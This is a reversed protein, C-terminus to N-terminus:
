EGQQNARMRIECHPSALFETIAKAREENMFRESAEATSNLSQLSKDRDAEDILSPNIEIENRLADRLMAVDKKLQENEAHYHKIETSCKALTEAIESIAEAKYVLLDM